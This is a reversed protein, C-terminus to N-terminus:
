FFAASVTSEALPSADNEFASGDARTLQECGRSLFGVMGVWDTLGM